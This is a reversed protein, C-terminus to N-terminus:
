FINYIENLVYTRKCIVFEKRSKLKKNRACENIFRTPHFNTYISINYLNFKMIKIHIVEFTMSACLLNCFTM